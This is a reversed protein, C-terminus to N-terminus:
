SKEMELYILKPSEAENQFINRSLEYGAITTQDAFTKAGQVSPNGYVDVCIEELVNVLRANDKQTELRNILKATMDHNVPSANSALMNIDKQLFLPFRRKKDSFLSVCFGRAYTVNELEIQGSSLIPIAKGTYGSRSLLEGFLLDGQFTQPCYLAGHHDATCITGTRVAELVEAAIDKGLLKEAHKAMLLYFDEPDRMPSISKNRTIKDAQRMLFEDLTINGHERCTRVTENRLSCQDAMNRLFNIKNIM